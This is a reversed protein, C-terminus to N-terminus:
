AAARARRSRAADCGGAEAPVRGPTCSERVRSDAWSSVSVGGRTKASATSSRRGSGSCRKSSTTSPCSTVRGRVPGGNSRASPSHRNVNGRGAASRISYRRPISPEKTGSGTSGAARRRGTRRCTPSRIARTRAAPRARSSRRRRGSRARRAASGCVPRGRARAARRSARAERRRRVAARRGRRGRTRRLVCAERAEEVRHAPLFADWRQVRRQDLRDVAVLRVRGRREVGAREGALEQRLDRFADRVALADAHARTEARERHQVRVDTVWAAEVAQQQLRAAEEPLAGVLLLRAERAVLADRPEDAVDEAACALRDGDREGAAGGLLVPRVVLADGRGKGRLAILRPERLHAVRM